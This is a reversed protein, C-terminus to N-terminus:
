ASHKWYQRRRWWALLGGSALLLGPLGSGAVPGPVVEVDSGVQIIINTPLFLSQGMANHFLRDERPPGAVVVGVRQLQGTEEIFNFGDTKITGLEPAPDSFFQFSTEQTGFLGPEPGITVLLIDSIKGTDPEVFVIGGTGPTSSAQFFNSKFPISLANPPEGFDGEGGQFAQAIGQDDVITLHVIPDTTDDIVITIAKAPSALVFSVVAAAFTLAAIGIWAKSPNLVM